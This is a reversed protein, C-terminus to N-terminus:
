VAESPRPGADMSSNRAPGGAGAAGGPCVDVFEELFDEIEDLEPALAAVSRRRAPHVPAAPITM